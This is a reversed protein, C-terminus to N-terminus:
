ARSVTFSSEEPLRFSITCTLGSPKFSMDVSGDLESPLVRQLLISGFGQRDSAIVQPGGTETWILDVRDGKESGEASWELDVRGEPHSLAGHRIANTALENLALTLSVAYRAPLWVQPGRTAFLTNDIDCYPSLSVQAVESLSAGGWDHDTLITHASALANIRGTFAKRGEAISAGDPFSLKAISQIVTLTNRVRHNLEGLVDRLREETEKSQSIDVVHGIFIPNSGSGNELYRGRVSIFRQTGKATIIQCEFSWSIKQTVAHEFLDAVRTRDRPVVHSLFQDFTWDPLMEDYGFIVDHYANRWAHLTVTDLEWAGIEAMELLNEINNSKSKQPITDSM